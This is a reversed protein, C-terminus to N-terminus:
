MQQVVLHLLHSGAPEANRGFVQHMRFLNFDLDRLAGLGTFAALQRAM